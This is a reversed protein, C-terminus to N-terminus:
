FSKRPTSVEQTTLRINPWGNNLRRSMYMQISDNEYTAPGRGPHKMKSENIKIIDFNFKM